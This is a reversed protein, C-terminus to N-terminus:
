QTKAEPPEITLKGNKLAELVQAGIQANQNVTTIYNKFGDVFSERMGKYIELEFPDRQQEPAPSLLSGAIKAVTEILAPPVQALIGGAPQGPLNPGLQAGQQPNGAPTHSPELQPNKKQKDIYTLIQMTLTGLREM